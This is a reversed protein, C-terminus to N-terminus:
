APAGSVLMGLDIALQHEIKAGRSKSWGRLMHIEDCKVLQAIAMRMYASWLEQESVDPKENEAPNLVVYGLARLGEAVRRFEPYGFDPLGTMPGSIYISKSM